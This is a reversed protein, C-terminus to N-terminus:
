GRGGPGRDRPRPQPGTASRSFRSRLWASAENSGAATLTRRHVDWVDNALLRARDSRVRPDVLQRREYPLELGLPLDDDAAGVAVRGLRVDGLRRQVVARRGHELQEDGAVAVRGGM